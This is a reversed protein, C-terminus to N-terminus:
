KLKKLLETAEEHHPHSADSSFSQLQTKAEDASGDQLYALALYWQAERYFPHKPNAIIQRFSSIAGPTQELALSANGKFFLTTDEASGEGLLRELIPLAQAYDRQQYEQMAQALPAGAQVSVGQYPKFYAAFLKDDRRGPGLILYLPVLLLLIAAAAWYFRQRTADDFRIVQAPPHYEDMQRDEAALMDLLRGRGAARLGERLQRQLHLEEALGAENRLRSEFRVKEDTSLENDLYREILETQAINENM